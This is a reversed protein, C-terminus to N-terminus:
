SEGSNRADFLCSCAREGSNIGLPRATCPTCVHRENQCDTPQHRNALALEDQGGPDSEQNRDTLLEQCDVM